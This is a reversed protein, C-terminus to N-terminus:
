PPDYRGGGLLDLGGPHPGAVAPGGRRDRELASLDPEQVRRWAEGPTSDLVVPAGRTSAGRPKLSKEDLPWAFIFQKPEQAIGRACVVLLAVVIALKLKMSNLDSSCVDSSWDGQLRTHRRRSSFFFVLSACRLHLWYLRTTALTQM